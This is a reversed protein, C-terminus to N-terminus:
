TEKRRQRRTRKKRTVRRPLGPVRSRKAKPHNALHALQRGQGCETKPATEGSLDAWFRRRPRESVAPASIRTGLREDQVAVAREPM